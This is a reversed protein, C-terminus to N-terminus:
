FIDRKNSQFSAPNQDARHQIPLPIYENNPSSSSSSSAICLATLELANRLRKATNWSMLWIRNEQLCCERNQVSEIKFVRLRHDGEVYSVWARIKQKVLFM